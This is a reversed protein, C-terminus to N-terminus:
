TQEVIPFIVAKQNNSPNYNIEKNVKSLSKELGILDSVTEENRNVIYFIKPFIWARFTKEETSLIVLLPDSYSIISNISIKRAVSFVPIAPFIALNIGGKLDDNKTYPQVTKIWIDSGIAFLINTGAVWTSTPSFINKATSTPYLINTGKAKNGVVRKICATSNSFSVSATAPYVETKKSVESIGTPYNFVTNAVDLVVPYPNKPDKLLPNQEGAVM